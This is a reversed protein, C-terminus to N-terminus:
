ASMAVVAQAAAGRRRSPAPRYVIFSLDDPKSPHGEDPSQMRTAADRRLLEAADALPGMRIRQVIESVHLNDSLGDSAVLLTDRAALELPAGITIHMDEAGIMNSILHREEHHMAEEQDLLGAEIAYGVPSHSISQMKIKGRQGVILIMSDGVHYPRVIRGQIEVVALTTAPGGLRRVADNASEFGNLIANRTELGHPGAAAIAKEMARIAEVAALNGGPLGGLGDAVVLVGCGDDMPILAAADECVTQRAPSRACCVAAEGGAFRYLDASSMNANFYSKAVQCPDQAMRKM